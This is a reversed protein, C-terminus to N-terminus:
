KKHKPIYHVKQKYIGNVVLLVVYVWTTMVERYMEEKDKNFHHKPLVHWIDHWSLWNFERSFSSPFRFIVGVSAVNNSYDSCNKHKNPKMYQRGWWRRWWWATHRVHRSTSGEHQESPASTRSSELPKVRSLDRAWAGSTVISNAFVRSTELSM